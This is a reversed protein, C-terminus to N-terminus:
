RFPSSALPLVPALQARHLRGARERLGEGGVVAGSQSGLYARPM